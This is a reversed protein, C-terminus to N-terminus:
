VRGPRRGVYCAAAPREETLRNTTRRPAWVGAPAARHVAGCEEPPYPWDHSAAMLTRSESEAPGLGSHLQQYLQRKIAAMAAPSSSEALDEVYRRAAHVVSGEDADVVHNVLGLRLAEAAGVSRGSLLLDMAAGSGVLRPLLWSVGLEAVLGWCSFSTAITAEPAMFRLDCAVVMAVAMGVAPGRIAAIIPKPVALFSTCRGRFDAGWSTEGATPEFTAPVDQALATM